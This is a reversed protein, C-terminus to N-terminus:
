IVFAFNIDETTMIMIVYTIKACWSKMVCLQMDTAQYMVANDADHRHFLAKSIHMFWIMAKHSFITSTLENLDICTYADAFYTMMTESLPKDGPQGCAMIQVLALISKKPGKAVFM